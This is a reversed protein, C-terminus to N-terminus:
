NTTTSDTGLTGVVTTIGASVIETLFIPPSSNAFGGTGSAGLLHEHPDILGPIVLHGTADITDYDIKLGDLARRDVQGLKLIKEGDVLISGRGIPQPTYIDGGEILKLVADSM